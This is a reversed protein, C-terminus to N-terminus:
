NTEDNLVQLYKLEGDLKNIPYKVMIGGILLVVQTRIDLFKNGPKTFSNRKKLDVLLSDM